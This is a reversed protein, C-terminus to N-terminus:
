EADESKSANDNDSSANQIAKAFEAEIDDATKALKKALLRLAKPSASFRFTEAVRERSMTDDATMRYAIEGLVIIVEAGPTLVGDNIVALTNTAYSIVEKM